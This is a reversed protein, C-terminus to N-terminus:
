KNGLMSHNIGYTNEIVCNLSIFKKGVLM